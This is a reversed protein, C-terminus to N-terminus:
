GLGPMEVMLPLISQGTVEQPNGVVVGNSNDFFHVFMPEIAAIQKTWTAGGNTTRFIGSSTTSSSTSDFVIWANNEDVATMNCAILTTAGPVSAATWTTGGNTTRIFTANSADHLHAAWCNNEDIAAFYLQKTNLGGPLGSYQPTWQALVSTGFSLTLWVVLLIVLNKM